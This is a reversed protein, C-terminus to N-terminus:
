LVSLLPTVQVAGLVQRAGGSAGRGYALRHLLLSWRELATGAAAAAAAPAAQFVPPRPLFLLALPVPPLWRCLLPDSEPYVAQMYQGYLQAM